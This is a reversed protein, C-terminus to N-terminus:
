GSLSPHLRSFALLPVIDMIHHGYKLLYQGVKSDFFYMMIKNPEEKKKEKEKKKLHPLKHKKTWLFYSEAKIHVTSLHHLFWQFMEIFSALCDYCSLYNDQQRMQLASIQSMRLFKKEGGLTINKNFPFDQEQLVYPSSSWPM